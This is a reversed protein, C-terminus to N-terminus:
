GGGGKVPGVSANPVPPALAVVPPALAVVGGGAQQRRDERDDGHPRDHLAAAVSCQRTRIAHAVNRYPIRFGLFDVLLWAAGGDRAAPYAGRWPAVMAVFPHHDYHEGTMANVARPPPAGEGTARCTAGGWDADVRLEQPPLEGAGCRPLRLADGRAHWMRSVEVVKLTSVKRDSFGLSVLMEDTVVLARKMGHQKAVKGMRSVPVRPWGRALTRPLGQGSHVEPVPINIFNGVVHKMVVMKIKHSMPGSSM